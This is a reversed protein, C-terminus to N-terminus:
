ASAEGAEEGGDGLKEKLNAVFLMRGLLILAFSIGVYGITNVIMRPMGGTSRMISLPEAGWWVFFSLEDIWGTASVILLLVIGTVLGYASCNIAGVGTNADIKGKKVAGSVSLAGLVWLLTM